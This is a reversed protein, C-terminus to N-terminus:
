SCKKYLLAQTAELKERLELMIEELRKNLNRTKVLEGDRRAIEKKYEEPSNM